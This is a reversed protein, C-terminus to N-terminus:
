PRDLSDLWQSAAALDAPTDIDYWRLDGIPTARLHGGRSLRLNGATLSHEGSRHAADLAPFLAHTMAFVGTDIADFPSLEKGIDRIMGDDDIRVKTADTVDIWPAVFSTALACADSPASLVCQLHASTILHDSMLLLFRDDGVVHEAYAASRGNGLVADPCVVMRIEVRKSLEEYRGVFRSPDSVILHVIQIGADALAASIWFLLPRGGVITLGKPENRDFRVGSGAALIVAEGIV